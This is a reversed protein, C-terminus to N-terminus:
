AEQEVKGTILVRWITKLADRRKSSKIILKVQSGAIYFGIIGIVTQTVMIATTLTAVLHTDDPTISEAIPAALLWFPLFWLLILGVGVRLRLANM